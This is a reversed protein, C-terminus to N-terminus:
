LHWEFLIGILLQSWNKKELCRRILIEELVLIRELCLKHLIFIQVFLKSIPLSKSIFFDYGGEQFHSITVKKLNDAHLVGM